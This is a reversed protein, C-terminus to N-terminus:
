MRIFMIFHLWKRVTKMYFMRLLKELINYLNRVTHQKKCATRNLLDDCTQVHILHSLGNFQWKDLM